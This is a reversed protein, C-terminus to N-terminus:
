PKSEEKTPFYSRLAKLVEYAVDPSDCDCVHGTADSIKTQEYIEFPPQIFTITIPM